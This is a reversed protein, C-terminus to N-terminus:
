WGEIHYAKGVLGPGLYVLFSILVLLIAIPISMGGGIRLIKSTKQYESNRKVNFSLIIAVVEAILMIIGSIFLIM